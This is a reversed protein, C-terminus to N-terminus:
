CCAWEIMDSDGSSSVAVRGDVSRARSEWIMFGRKVVVFCGFRVDVPRFSRTGGDGGEIAFLKRFSGRPSLSEFGHFVGKM